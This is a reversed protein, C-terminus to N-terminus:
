HTETSTVSRILVYDTQIDKGLVFDHSGVRQFGWRHYFAQARTNKEWVGLWLPDFHQTAAYNLCSQMLQAGYGRGIAQQEVYLRSLEIPSEAKTLYPNTSYEILHAYGVVASNASAHAHVLLFISHPDTLQRQMVQPSFATALYAAMDEPHNDDAFAEWFTRKGLDILRELDQLTAQRIHSM